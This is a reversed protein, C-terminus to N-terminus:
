GQRWLGWMFRHGGETSAAEARVDAVWCGKKGDVAEVVIGFDPIARSLHGLTWLVDV